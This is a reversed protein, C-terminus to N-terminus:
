CEVTYLDGRKGKEATQAKSLDPHDELSLQAQAEAIKRDEAKAMELLRTREILGRTHRALIRFCDARLQYRRVERRVLDGM